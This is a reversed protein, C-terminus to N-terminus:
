FKKKTTTFIQLGDSSVKKFNNQYWLQAIKKTDDNFISTIM